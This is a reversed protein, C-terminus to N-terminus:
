LGLQLQREKPRRNIRAALYAMANEVRRAMIRPADDIAEQRARDAGILWSRLERGNRLQCVYEGTAKDFVDSRTKGCVVDFFRSEYQM